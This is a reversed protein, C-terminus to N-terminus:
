KQIRLDICVSTWVTFNFGSTNEYIRQQYCPERQLFCLTILKSIADGYFSNGFLNKAIELKEIAKDMLIEADDL